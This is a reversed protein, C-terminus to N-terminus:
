KNKMNETLEGNFAKQLVSKKLEELNSIKQQYIAELKKTEAQLADLQQVIKKQTEISKPFPVLIENLIKQPLRQRGTAGEMKNELHKRISSKLFYFLYETEVVENKGQFPIVETTAYGYKEQIDVIGQKGNEFSPTIKALLLDGKKIFTGSSVKERYENIKIYKKDLPVYNMPIFPIPNNLILGRPKRSYDVIDLFKREVWEGNEIKLKGNDFIAQLKSQFIEKANNLNQEANAKAQDIAKFARDLISVIRKQEPLPPLPIQIQKIDSLKLSPYAINQMLDKADITILYYFLFKDDCSEGAKITSLHSAVYGDIGMMVRHNLFTSAGSKPFLITGKKFLRLKRIGEENLYDTCSILIGKKIKGVDATRIFPNTGNIFLEKKQPASNGASVECVEGLKKVEWGKPLSLVDGKPLSLADGKPLQENDM